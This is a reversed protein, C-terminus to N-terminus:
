LGLNGTARVKLKERKTHSDHSVKKGFYAFHHFILLFRSFTNERIKTVQRLQHPQSAESFSVSFGHTGPEIGPGPVM